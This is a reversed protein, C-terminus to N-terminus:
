SRGRGREGPAHGRTRISARLAGVIGVLLGAPCLLLAIFFSAVALPELVHRQYIGSGIRALAALVNYLVAFLVFAAVSGYSLRLYWRALTWPHVVSAIGAMCALYALLIGPPNDDIGVRAAATVLGGCAIAFALTM